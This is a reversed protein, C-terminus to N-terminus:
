NLAFIIFAVIFIISAIVNGAVGTLTGLMGGLAARWAKKSKHHQSLESIYIGLFFGLISGLIPLPIIFTGVIFGLAGGLLSKTNAGGFRAGLIGASIDFLMAIVVVSGLVLLNHQTLLEFHTVFGFVVSVFLLYLLGPVGPIFCAIIGPLLLIVFLLTILEYTM